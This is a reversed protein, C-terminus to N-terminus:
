RAGEGSGQHPAETHAVDSSAGKVRIAIPVPRVVTIVSGQCRTIKHPTMTPSAADSGRREDKAGQDDVTPEVFATPQHETDHTGGPRGPLEDKEGQDSVDDLGGSPSCDGPTDCDGREREYGDDPEDEDISRTINAKKGVAGIRVIRRGLLVVGLAACRSRSFCVMRVSTSTARWRVKQIRAPVKKM